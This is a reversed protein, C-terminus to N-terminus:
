SQFSCPAEAEALAFLVPIPFVVCKNSINAICKHSGKAEAINGTKPRPTAKAFADGAGLEQFHLVCRDDREDRVDLTSRLSAPRAVSAAFSVLRGCPEIIRLRSMRSVPSSQSVKGSEEQLFAMTNM